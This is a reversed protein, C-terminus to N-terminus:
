ERIRARLLAGVVHAAMRVMDKNREASYISIISRKTNVHVKTITSITLLAKKIGVARELTLGDVFYSYWKLKATV